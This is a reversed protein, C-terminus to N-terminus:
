KDDMKGDMKGDPRKDDPKKDDPRRGGRRGRGDFPRDESVTYDAPPEFLSHAPEARNINKLRYTHEGLRPDRYKSLVVEQLAASYWRESVVELARENGIQGAPITVTTRTGEAEIGEIVQKGLSETKAEPSDRKTFQPPAQPPGGARFTMKRASHKQPDLMYNIGAVPDNIFVMPPPSAGDPRSAALPGINQLTQERRTRGESDRYVNATTKRVIRSGDALTQVMEIETVASYPAGKVTKGGFRGEASMFLFSSDPPPFHGPGQRGDPPPGGPGRQRNQGNQENQGQGRPSFSKREYQAPEQKVDQAYVCLAAAFMVTMSFFAILGWGPFEARHRFQKIPKM